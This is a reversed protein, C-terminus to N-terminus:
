TAPWKSAEDYEDINAEGTLPEESRYIASGPRIYWLDEPQPAQELTLDQEIELEVAHNDDGILTASDIRDMGMLRAPELLLAGWSSADCALGVAQALDWAHLRSKKDKPVAVTLKITATGDWHSSISPARMPFSELDIWVTPETVGEGTPEYLRTAHVGPVAKVVAEVAELFESVLM